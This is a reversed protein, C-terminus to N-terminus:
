QRIGVNPDPQEAGVVGVRQDAEGLCVVQEILVRGHRRRPTPRVRKATM